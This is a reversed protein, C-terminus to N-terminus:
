FDSNLIQKNIFTTTLYILWSLYKMWVGHQEIRYIPIHTRLIWQHFECSFVCDFQLCLISFILIVSSHLTHWIIIFAFCKRRLYLLEITNVTSQIHWVTYFSNFLPLRKMLVNYNPLSMFNNPLILSSEKYRIDWGTLLSDSDFM